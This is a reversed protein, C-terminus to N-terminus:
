GRLLAQAERLEGQAEEMTKMSEEPTMGLREFAPITDWDIKALLHQTGIHSHLNAVIVVDVYEVPGERKLTIDEHEAAVNVIEPPFSWEELVTPGVMTHLRRMVTELAATDSLLEPHLEVRSLVPLIGIDHVLGALLAHDPRLDTFHKCIVQSLTAVKTSHQWLNKMYNKILPHTTQSQYLQEMVLSTVLNRIMDTGLRTIAVRLNDIPSSGRYAPSNVVKLLRASLAMDMNILKEVQVATVNPDQVLKRVRMAVEPLTPLTIRNANLDELFGSLFRKELEM